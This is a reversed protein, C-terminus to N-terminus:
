KLCEQTNCYYRIKVNFNESENGQAVSLNLVNSNTWQGHLYRQQSHSLCSMKNVPNDTKKKEM